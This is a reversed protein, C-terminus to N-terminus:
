NLTDYSKSTVTHSLSRRAIQTLHLTVVITALLGVIKVLWEVLQAEPPPNQPMGIAAIDGALSGLYVYLITGPIMGLSGLVYHPLSVQTVGFAYNLCNFPFVPSLRSLFVIKFGSKAVALDLALFKPNKQIQRRVWNGAFYRGILFAVTAGLTSAIIVYISGWFLGYLVGGGLTLLSGPIFLITALNYIVIFALVGTTGQCQVWGLANIVQAQVQFHDAAIALCIVLALGLLVSRWFKLKTLQSRM